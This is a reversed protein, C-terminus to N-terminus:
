CVIRCLLCRQLRCLTVSSDVSKLIVNIQEEKLRCMQRKVMPDATIDVVFMAALVGSVSLYLVDQNGDTM